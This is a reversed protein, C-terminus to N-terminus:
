DGWVAVALMFSIIFYRLVSVEETLKGHLYSALDLLVLLPLAKLLLKRDLLARDTIELLPLM